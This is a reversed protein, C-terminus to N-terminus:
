DSSLGNFRETWMNFMHRNKAKEADALLRRFKEEEDENWRDADGKIISEYHQLAESLVGQLDEKSVNKSSLKASCSTYPIAKTAGKTAGKITDKSFAAFCKALRQIDERASTNKSIVIDDPTPTEKTLWYRTTAYLSTAGFPETLLKPYRSRYEFLRLGESTEPYVLPLYYAVAGTGAAGLVNAGALMAFVIGSGVKYIKSIEHYAIIDKSISQTATLFTCVADKWSYSCPEFFHVHTVSDKPVNCDTSWQAFAEACLIHINNINNVGILYTVLQEKTAKTHTFIIGHKKNMAFAKIREHLLQYRTNDNTDKYTAAIRVGERLQAETPNNHCQISWKLTDSAQTKSLCHTVYEVRTGLIRPGYKSHFWNWEHNPTHADAVDPQVVYVYEHLNWNTKLTNKYTSEKNNFESRLLQQVGYLIGYLAVYAVVVMQYQRPVRLVHNILYQFAHFFWKAASHLHPVSSPAQKLLYANFQFVGLMAKDVYGYAGKLQARSTSSVTDFIGGVTDCIAKGITEGISRATGPQLYNLLGFLTLSGVSSAFFSGAIVPLVTAAGAMV